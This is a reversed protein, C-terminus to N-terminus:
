DNEKEKLWKLGLISYGALDLLTDELSEDNEKLEGKKILSSIRNFKDGLRIKLVLLGDEDLSKGFSDGYADNKEQLTEALHDTYKIFPNSKNMPIILEHNSNRVAEIQNIFDNLLSEQHSNLFKLGNNLWKKKTFDYIDTPHLPHSIIGIKEVNMANQQKLLPLWALDLRDDIKRVAAILEEPRTDKTIETM